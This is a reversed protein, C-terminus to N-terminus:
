GPIIGLCEVAGHKICYEEVEKDCTAIYVERLVVALKSRFYVHHIMPKDLIKALPKGPFRISAMRAPIIGIINTM